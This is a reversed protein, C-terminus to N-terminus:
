AVRDPHRKNKQYKKAIKDLMQSYLFFSQALNESVQQLTSEPLQKLDACGESFHDQDAESHVRIFSGSNKGFSKTILSYLEAGAKCALGELFLSYGLHANPDRYDIWYYQTQYFSRTEPFEIYELISKNLSKLDNLALRDHGKEEQFHELINALSREDSMNFRTVQTGMFGITHKVFFYTQALWESYMDSNSWDFALIQKRALDIKVEFDEVLKEYSVPTNM